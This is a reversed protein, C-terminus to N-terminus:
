WPFGPCQPPELSFPWPAAFPLAAELALRRHSATVWRSEVWSPRWALALEAGLAWRWAWGEDGCSSVAGWDWRGAPKLKSGGHCKSNWWLSKLLM